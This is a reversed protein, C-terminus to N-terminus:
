FSAKSYYLIYTYKYFNIYIYIFVYIFLNTFLCISIYMFKYILNNVKSIPSLPDVLSHAFIYICIYIYVYIYITHVNIHIHIYISIRLLVSLFTFLVNRVIVSTIYIVHRLNNVKSIPSLPDVLSHAFLLFQKIGCPARSCACCLTLVIRDLFLQIHLYVCM